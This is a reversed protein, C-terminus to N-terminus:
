DSVKKGNKYTGSREKWVSGDESYYIWVGEEKGNKYNGKAFLSGDEWYSKYLGENKGNKFGWKM